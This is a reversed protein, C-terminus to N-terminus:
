GLASCPSCGAGFSASPSLRKPKKFSTQSPVSFERCLDKSAIAIDQVLYNCRAALARYMTADSPRLFSSNAAIELKKAKKAGLRKQQYENMDPTTRTAFVSGVRESDDAHRIEEDFDM